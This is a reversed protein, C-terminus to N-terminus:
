GMVLERESGFRAKETWKDALRDIRGERKRQLEGM